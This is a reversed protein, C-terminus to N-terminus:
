LHKIVKAPVGAIVCNSSFSKTVVSNAGVTVNDGLEVGPLITVSTGLWCNKGIKVSGTRYKNRDIFDHNGTQICVNTAWVSGEGIELTTGFFVTFYCGGSVAFSIKISEANKPLIIRAAGQIRSTFSVSYPVDSNRRFVRQFLWNVFLQANDIKYYYPKFFVYTFLFKRTKRQIHKSYNKIRFNMAKIIKGM